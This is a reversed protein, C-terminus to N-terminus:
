RKALRLWTDGHCLQDLRCVCAVNHDRLPAVLAEFQDPHQERFADLYCKHVAVASARASADLLGYPSRCPWALWFARDHASPWIATEHLARAIDEIRWPNGYRSPRAVSVAALGNTDLSHKQLNFGKRRSLQLRVPTTM